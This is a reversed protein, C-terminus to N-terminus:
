LKDPPSPVTYIHRPFIGGWFSAHYCMDVIGDMYAYLNKNDTQGDHIYAHDNGSSKEFSSCSPGSHSANYSLDVMTLAQWQVIATPLFVLDNLM